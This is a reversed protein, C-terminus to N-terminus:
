AQWTPEKRIMSTATSVLWIPLLAYAAYTLVGGPTFISDKMVIGLLMLFNVAATVAAVIGLWTPFARQRFSLIAVGACMVALPAYAVVSIAYGLIGFVAAVAPEADVAMAMTIQFSQLTMQLGVWVCGAGFVLSSLAGADSEARKLFARLASFFWLSFCGGLIYLLSQALLEGRYAHIFAILEGSGANVPPAGRELMVGAMGIAVSVFGM